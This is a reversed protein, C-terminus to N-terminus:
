QHDPNQRLNLISGMKESITSGFGEEQWGVFENSVPELLNHFQTIETPADRWIQAAVVPVTETRDDFDLNAADEDIVDDAGTYGMANWMPVDMEEELDAVDSHYLGHLHTMAVGLSWGMTFMDFDEEVYVPDLAAAFSMVNTDAPVGIENLLHVWAQSYQARVPMEDPPYTILELPGQGPDGENDTHAEELPQGNVHLIQGDVPDATESTAEEWSYEHTADPHEILFNRLEEVGEETLNFDEGPFGLDPVEIGDYEDIEWPEDPRFLDFQPIIVYDGIEAGIGDNLDEVVWEKDFTRVLFQRFAVDDYPVRRLNYSNHYYGVDPTNFVTFEEDEEAQIATETSVGAPLYMTHIDGDMLAQEAATESGYIEINWRDLFPADDDIWEIEELETMPVADERVDIQFWEEWAYDDLEWPGSGILGDEDLPDYEAYDPVDSWIHEPLIISGLIGTFWYVDPEELWYNLEYGDPSDYDVEELSRFPEATISGGPEQEQIYEISFAVDEATVPEGDNFTLGDHLTATIAPDGTGINDEELEWDTIAWPMLDDMVPERQGFEPHTTTGFTYVYNLIFAEYASGYALVNLTDPPTVMGVTIEGGEIIEEQAEPTPTPTAEPDEDDDGVCGALALGAGTGVGGIFKRRDIRGVSSSEDPM